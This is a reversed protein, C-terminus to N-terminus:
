KKLSDKADFLKNSDLRKKAEKDAEFMKYTEINMTRAVINSPFMEKKNRLNKVASNYARRAWQLRDEIESWQSQLELFNTNAKLEPYNEALAFISKLWIELSNEQIFREEANQKKNSLLQSRIETVEKLVNAEHQMYQKVIKVLNPILDYRNQLVTDIASFSEKVSNKAKIIANYIAIFYLVIFTIVWWVILFTQTEM